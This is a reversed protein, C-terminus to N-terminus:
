SLGTWDIEAVSPGADYLPPGGDLASYDSDYKSPDALYHGCIRRTDRYERLLREQADDNCVLEGDETWINIEAWNVAIM